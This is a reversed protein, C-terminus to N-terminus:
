PLSYILKCYYASFLHNLKTTSPPSAPRTPSTAPPSTSNGVVNGECIVGADENHGCNHSGFPLHTCNTISSENGSCQVNDLWIQASGQGFYANSLASQARGCALQRCVVQAESLTWIDDCVTGWQGQHYVEVRGSCSSSGGNVLRVGGEVASTNSTVSPTPPGRTTSPPSAPRTSSTAPPSTSNGVVNGECIVGADEHHGCNHSGFPLHTCNTISWENGSCQVDDLWIQASGQGFYANSLASQARGCALQRCVVQADSLDWFDDCVTGWQGQHYVEVRGSCSSSGGNVLRVGGEVASTNSTVSPTPPGRTTSPPSAPRTSSTAPPSTSNGVVNGECIVGADEAHVCDHSGFPLHACNTISWENGSCQVNDLWIQASGQGFYANSLASQARGCALQRCVVQADSLDWFDDCVTGWQGQHYVEVRGSCSSSGGNVLRVGGEVASTNSTVSPTPPGRTTSPPSAPRTSSTAPPSTSNGVVNGQVSLATTGWEVGIPYTSYECTYNGQDSVTVNRIQISANGITLPIATFRVRDGLPSIPYSSGFVPHFVAVGYRQVSDARTVTQILLIFFLWNPGMMVIIRM